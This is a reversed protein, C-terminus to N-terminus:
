EAKKEERPPSVFGSYSIPQRNQSNISLTGYGSGGVSLFLDYKDTDGKISFQVKIIQKKENLSLELNEPAQEFEIGGDGGYSATYARGMYPLYARYISDRAELTYSPSVSRSGGGTPNVSQVTFMYSGSEILATMEKFEQEKKEKKQALAPALGSLLILITLLSTKIKQTNEM